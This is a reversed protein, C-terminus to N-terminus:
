VLLDRHEDLIRQRLLAPISRSDDLRVKIGVLRMDQVGGRDSM